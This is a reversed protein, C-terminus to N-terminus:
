YRRHRTHWASRLCLSLEPATVFDGGEGFKRLGSVYYGLGPAYLAEQMYAMFSLSGDRAIIECLQAVLRESRLLLRKDPVPLGSM